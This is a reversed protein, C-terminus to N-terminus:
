ACLDHCVAIATATPPPFDDDDEVIPCWLILELVTEDITIVENVLTINNLVQNINTM